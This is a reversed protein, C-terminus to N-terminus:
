YSDRRLWHPRRVGPRRGPATACNRSARPPSQPTEEQGLGFNVSYFTATVSRGERLASEGGMATVARAVLDRPAPAQALSSLLILPFALATM